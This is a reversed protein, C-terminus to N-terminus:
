CSCRRRRTPSSAHAADDRQLVFGCVPARLEDLVSTHLLFDRTRRPLVQLLEERVYDVVIRDDGAFVAAAAVPDDAEALVLTALYLGM